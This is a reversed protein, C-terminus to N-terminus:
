ATVPADAAASNARSKRKATATVVRNKGTRKADYLAADAAAVLAEVTPQAPFCAAGFSATVKLPTGEATTVSLEELNKRIKEALARAGTLNTGPLVLAIEEGGYRGPLDLERVAQAFAQAVRRLVEDGTQHGYSDNISKFDDIDAIVFGVHTGLRRAHEVEDDLREDLTRRNALNTLGDTQAQRTLRALDAFVRAVPRALRTALGAALALTIAAVFLLRRRYANVRASVASVPEVAVLSANAAGLNTDTSYFAVGAVEIQRAGVEIHTGAPGGAILRGHQVLVLAAHKPMPTASQLVALLSRDMPVAMTVRAVAHGRRALTATAMVRPKKPLMGFSRGRLDIRADHSTAFSRLQAENKGLVAQQLSASAALESVRTRLNARMTSFTSAAVRATSALETRAEQRNSHRASLDLTFVVAAIAAAFVLFVVLAARTIALRGYRSRFRSEM